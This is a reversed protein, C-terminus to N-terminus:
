SCRATARSLRALLRVLSHERKHGFLESELLNEPIAWASQNIFAGDSRLSLGHLERAVLEKGTGTEGRILVSLDTPAVRRLIQFMKKMAGCNGIM